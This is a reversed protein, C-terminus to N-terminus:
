LGSELHACLIPIKKRVLQGFFLERKRQRLVVATIKLGPLLAINYM